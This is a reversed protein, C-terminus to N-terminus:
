GSIHSAFRKAKLNDERCSSRVSCKISQIEPGQGAESACVPRGMHLHKENEIHTFVSIQSRPTLEIGMLLIQSIRYVTNLHTAHHYLSPDTYLFHIPLGFHRESVTEVDNRCSEFM